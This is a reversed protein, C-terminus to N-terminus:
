QNRNGTALPLNGRRVFSWEASNKDNYLLSYGHAYLKDITATCRERDSIREGTWGLDFDVSLYTPFIGAELMQDLVDCEPGEIDLKLLDIRSHGLEKMITEIKKVPVSIHHVGKMGAMLSHSVYQANSPLYFKMAPTDTTFLGWPYFHVSDGPIAHTLIRDWYGPDGGGFRRDPIAPAGNLVAKVLHVHTIARPTPDFIYVPAGCAKAVEIDHSVDEGAGVCYLISDKTLGPLGEPYYMGAYVTGYRQM